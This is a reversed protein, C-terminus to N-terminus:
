RVVMRYAAWGGGEVQLLMHASAPDAADMMWIDTDKNNRQTSSYAIRTTHHAVLYSGNRSKGDTLLTIAGTPVDYRYIQYWEGGGTDKQFLFSDGSPLWAASVIRDPYFTLQRRAGGPMAVSHVQVTDAFRTGILIERHIPHWAFLTASRSEGYRAVEEALKVPIPPINEIVLNDAPKLVDAPESVPQQAGIPLVLSLCLGAFFASRKLRFVEVPFASLRDQAKM